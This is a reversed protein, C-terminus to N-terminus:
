SVTSTDSGRTATLIPSLYIADVGLDDLYDVLDAADDLTFSSRIQLRYTSSPASTTVPAVRPHARRSAGDPGSLQVPTTPHRKPISGTPRAMELVRGRGGGATLNAEVHV